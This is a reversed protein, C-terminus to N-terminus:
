PADSRTVAEPQVLPPVTVEAANGATRNGAPVVIVAVARTVSVAVGPAWV